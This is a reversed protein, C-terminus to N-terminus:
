NEPPSSQKELVNHVTQLLEETAFPKAIFADMKIDGAKAIEEASGSAVIIKIDPMMKRLVGVTKAGDMFPMDLDTIVLRVDRRNESFLTVAELGSNAAVVRYNYGELATRTIALISEEDDVILITEGKGIPPLPRAEASEVADNAEAPLFMKFESGEGTKTKVTMFGGHNRVITLSTSLGLGTGKGPAKTTYFPQFIKKLSEDSIGTGTDAVTICLYNGGHAEPSLRRAADADLHLNEAALTLRGGKPMADRANVCLNMLVQHLQTPYAAVPWSKKNVQVRCQINKPFVDGIIKGMEKLLVEVHMAKRPANSDRGFTLVQKVMEAGRRVSSEMTELIGAVKPSLNKEERLIQVGVMLPVLANNLDHAIGSALVALSEFRQARLFQEELQKIKDDTRKRESVDITVGVMRQPKGEADYIVSARDLVHPFSGDSRCIRHESWWIRGRGAILTSIGSIVRGKDDPHILDFWRESPIDTEGTTGYIAHFNENFSVRNNVIDWEWIVDNTARTIVRLREETQRLEHETKELRARESSNRLARHVAAILRHPRQKLVYDTAGNKLSDVAIEEGITGSFFIFPIKPKLSQALSLATLGDYSPLTFDSIILDYDTKRLAEAFEGQSRAISFNCHLGNAHFLESVFIHDNENDELHLVRLQRKFFDTKM